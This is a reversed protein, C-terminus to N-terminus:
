SNRKPGMHRPPTEGMERPPDGGMERPLDGGMGHPPDGGMDRPPDGGMDRPPDAKPRPDQRPVPEWATLQVPYTEERVSEGEIAHRTFRVEHVGNPRYTKEPDLTLAYDRRQGAKGEMGAVIAGATELTRLVRRVRESTRPHHPDMGLAEALARHGAFYPPPEHDSHAMHAMFLLARIPQDNLHTWRTMVTNVAQYSM